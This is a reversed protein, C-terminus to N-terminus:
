RASRIWKHFVAGGQVLVSQEKSDWVPGHGGSVVHNIQRVKTTLSNYAAYTSAPSCIVDIFGVAMLVPCKIKPAFNVMDFYPATKEAGEPTRKDALLRPWGSIHGAAAGLHDCMATATSVCYKVEPVLAACVISQCGGLSGGYTGLNGNFEPLSMVYDAAVVTRLFIKRMAYNQKDDAKLYQYDKVEKRNATITDDSKNFSNELGHFNINYVISISNRATNGANRVDASVKSAGNFNLRAPISKAKSNAPMTLYGSVVVDGRKVHLDFGVIGAPLKDAPIPTKKVVELPNARLLKLENAWFEDFDAPRTIGPRIKEPEVAAGGYLVTSKKGPLQLEFLVFGPKRAKFTVSSGELKVFKGPKGSDDVRYLANAPAETINFVIDEGVKYVASQREARVQPAAMMIFSSLTVACLLLKKM